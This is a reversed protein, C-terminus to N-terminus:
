SKKAKARVAAARVRKEVDAAEADTLGLFGRVTTADFGAAKQRARKASSMRTPAISGVQRIAKPVLEDFAKLDAHRLSERLREDAARTAASIKKRKPAPKRAPKKKRV